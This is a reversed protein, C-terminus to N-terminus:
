RISELVEADIYEAEIDIDASVNRLRRLAAETCLSTIDSGTYGQTAGAIYDLDVNDKLKMNRTVIRIIELRGAFDPVGIEIERDFRGYRRRSPDISNPSNTAAIVFLNTSSKVGDMLTLFQSVVRKEVEGQTKESKPAIADLEDIFVQHLSRPPRKM